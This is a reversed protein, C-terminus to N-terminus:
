SIDADWNFLYVANGFTFFHMQQPNDVRRSSTM